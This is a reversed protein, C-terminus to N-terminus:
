QKKMIKPSSTTAPSSFISQLQKRNNEAETCRKTAPVKNEALFRFILFYIRESTFIGCVVHLPNAPYM